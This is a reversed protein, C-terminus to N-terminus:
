PNPTPDLKFLGHSNEHWPLVLLHVSHSHLLRCRAFSKCGFVGLSDIDTKKYLQLAAFESRSGAASNTLKHSATVERSNMLENCPTKSAEHADLRRSQSHKTFCPTHRQKSRGFVLPDGTQSHSPTGHHMREGSPCM